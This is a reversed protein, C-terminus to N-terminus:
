EITKSHSAVALKRPRGRVHKLPPAKHMNLTFRLEFNCIGRGRPPRLSAFAGMFQTAM